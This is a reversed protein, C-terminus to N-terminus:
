FKWSAKAPLMWLAGVNQSLGFFPTEYGITAWVGCYQTRDRECSSFM